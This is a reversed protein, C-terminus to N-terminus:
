WESYLTGKLSPVEAASKVDYVGPTENPRDPDPEQFVPTWDPSGTMPDNPMRRLYGDEVLSELAAPYHGKDVYYQDIVDRLRYLDEALVAERSQIIATKYNPLAISVLIGILAIVAMLEVLTFGAAARVPEGPTTTPEM